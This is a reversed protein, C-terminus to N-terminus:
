DDGNLLGLENILMNFRTEDVPKTFLDVLQYETLVFHLEMDDNMVHDKFFHYKIEMSKTKSQTVLNNSIAIAGINDCYIPITLLQLDYDKRHNIM